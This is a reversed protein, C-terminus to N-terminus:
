QELMDINTQPCKLIKAFTKCDTTNIQKVSNKNAVGTKGMNIEPELGTPM